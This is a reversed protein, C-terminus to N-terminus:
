ASNRLYGDYLLVPVGDPTTGIEVVEMSSKIPADMAAETIGYHEIIKKQGESTAGGHSGMAPVIFPKAGIRKLESVVEALITKMNAIGRSGATIAVSNESPIIEQLAIKSIEARVTAPIDLISNTNFHQKIRVMAPTNM